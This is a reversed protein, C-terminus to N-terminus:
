PWRHVDSGDWTITGVCPDVIKEVDPVLGMTRVLAFCRVDLPVPSELVVTAAALLTAGKTIVDDVLLIKREFLGPIGHFTFSRVHVEPGPREGPAAYASKPVSHERVLGQYVVRALGANQLEQCIRLAPWHYGKKIPACGPVPVLIADRFFDFLGLKEAEKSKKLAIAAKRVIGPHDCKVARVLRSSKKSTPSVGRPSYVLFSGFEVKSIM